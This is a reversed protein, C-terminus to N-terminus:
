ANRWNIGTGPGTPLNLAGGSVEIGEFPDNLIHNFEAIEHAFLPEALTMALHATYAQLLRPGFSSGFRYSIGATECIAVAKLVNRIGGLNIIRLNISEVIHNSALHFIAPLTQASEDAELPIPVARAVQELGQLDDAPTPQEILEVGLDAMACIAEIATKTRYAQNADVMLHTSKDVAESVARVRALDLDKDGSAKVKLYRYGEETLKVASKAMEMPSKLSILRAQPMSTRRLGGFLECLPVGLTRAKLDFLACEIAAKATGFGFLAKDLLDMIEGIRTEDRGELDQVLHSLISQMAALPPGGPPTGRAYGLGTHGTYNTLALVLGSVAPIGASAYRWSPDALPQEIPTISIKVITM